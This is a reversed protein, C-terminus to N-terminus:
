EEVVLTGTVEEQGDEPCAHCRFPVPGARQPTLSLETVRGPRIVSRIGYDPIAFLHRRDDSVMEFVVPRGKKLRITEPAFGWTEISIRVHGPSSTRLPHSGMLTARSPRGGRTWPKQRLWTILLALLRM